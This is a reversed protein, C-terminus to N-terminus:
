LRNLYVQLTGDMMAKGESDAIEDAYDYFKRPVEPNGGWDYGTGSEVLEDLYDEEHKFTGRANSRVTMERSERDYNSEMLSTDSLGGSDGRREYRWGVGFSYVNEIIAKRLIFKAIDGNEDESMALEIADDLAKEIEGVTEYAAM